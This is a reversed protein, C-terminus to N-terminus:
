VVGAVAIAQRRRAVRSKIRLCPREVLYYSCVALVFALLLNLPFACLPSSSYRDLFPQQWLYLSYSLIGIWRMPGTELVRGIGSQPNRICWIILVAVVLNTLSETISHSLRPMLGAQPLILITLIVWAIHPTRFRDVARTFWKEAQVGALLCGTALSDAVTHFEMGISARHTPLLYWVAMRIVPSLLVVGAAGYLARRRGLLCIVTPWLIYFQEEVALSWTHGLVWPRGQNYNSTYSLAALLDRWHLPQGAWIWVGAIVTLFCYYAPFIRLFRRTYFGRLSIKGNNSLEKFLLTTILFGSLVFFIRVGLEGLPAIPEWIPPGGRTGSLHGLLVMGIAIARLGDLTPIRRTESM